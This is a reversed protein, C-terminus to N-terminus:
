SLFFTTAVTRGSLMGMDPLQRRSLFNDRCYTGVVHGHRATAEFFSLFNDCCYTGVVHGHRATAELFSLQRLLVDRCCAWTQCNGRLFFSRQRSPIDPCCAWTQCNGWLFFSLQRLLVDRCCAWTQCNGRLFFTTPVTRGSLMGLDPLQRSSLFNDRCYTRVVHGHRATAESFSLQRSLIDRCCAWTQCSGRLFFTTAVTHGSLMGMDPLQRQSLFSDRCYTGVVHGHRATHGRWKSVLDSCDSQLLDLTLYFNLVHAKLLTTYDLSFHTYVGTAYLKLWKAM